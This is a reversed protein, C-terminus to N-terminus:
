VTPRGKEIPHFGVEGHPLSKGLIRTEVTEAGMFRRDMHPKLAHRDRLAAEPRLGLSLSGCVAHEQLQFV